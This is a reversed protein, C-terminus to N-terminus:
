VRLMSLVFFVLQVLRMHPDLLLLHSKGMATRWM